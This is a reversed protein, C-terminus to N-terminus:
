DRDSTLNIEVDIKGNCEPYSGMFFLKPDTCMKEGDRREGFKKCVNLVNDVISFDKDYGTFTAAEQGNHYLQTQARFCYDGTGRSPPPKSPPAGSDTRPIDFTGSFPFRNLTSM